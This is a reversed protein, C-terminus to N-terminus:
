SLGYFNPIDLNFRIIFPYNIFVKLYTQIITNLEDDTIVNFDLPLIVEDRSDTEDGNKDVVQSGHGSYSFFLLDNSIGILKLSKFFRLSSFITLHL